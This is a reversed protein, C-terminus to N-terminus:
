FQKAIEVFTRIMVGSAGSKPAYPLRSGTHWATGAIDFHAHPIEEPVFHSLFACATASGAGRSKSINSLDAFTGEIDKFHEPDLPMRWVKELSSEAAKEVKKVLDESKSFYGTHTNGLAIVMAGTLTAADIIAAPKQESAYALADALILRGEADTNNVEATKGNRFTLIDGPKNASGGLLNETAPVYGVVNVKLGLKAIALLTAIVNAGGCMDYKMEEMSAAPKISIGGADFTLGKGVFAVPKKGKAGGNYEMIIFKPDQDSGLSVGHLGGFREKIIKDKNWVTVKLPTGKAAKVASQALIEPTMLNGPLDGLERAFNIAEAMIKASQLAAQASKISKSFHIEVHLALTKKDTKRLSPDYEALLMGEIFAQLETEFHKESLALSDGYVLIHAIKAKQLAKCTNAGLVRFNEHTMSKHEGLGVVLLPQSPNQFNFRSDNLEKEFLGSQSLEDVLKDISKDGSHSKKNIASFTVLLRGPNKSQPKFTSITQTLKINM